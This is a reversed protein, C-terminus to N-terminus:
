ILKWIGESVFSLFFYVQGTNAYEKKFNWIFIAFKTQKTNDLFFGIVQIDILLAFLVFIQDSCYSHTAVLLTSEKNSLGVFFLCSTSFPVRMWFYKLIHQILTKSYATDRSM